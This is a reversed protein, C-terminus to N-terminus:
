PNESEEGLQSLPTGRLWRLLQDPTAPNDTTYFVTHGPVMKEDHDSQAWIVRQLVPERCAALPGEVPRHQLLITTGYNDSTWRGFNTTPSKWIWQLRAGGEMRKGQKLYGERIDRVCHMLWVVHYGAKMFHDCVDFFSAEMLLGDQLMVAYHNLCIFAIETKGELTVPVNRAEPPVLSQWMARWEEPSQEPTTPKRSFLKM